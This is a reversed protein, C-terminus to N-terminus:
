ASDPRTPDWDSLFFSILIIAKREKKGFVTEKMGGHRPSFNGWYINTQKTNEFIYIYIYRREEICYM